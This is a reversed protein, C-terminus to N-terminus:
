NGCYLCGCRRDEFKAEAHITVEWLEIIKGGKTRRCPDLLSRSYKKGRHRKLVNPKDYFVFEKYETDGDLLEITFRYMGIPKGCSYIEYAHYSVDTECFMVGFQGDQPNGKIHKIALYPYNSVIIRIIYEAEYRMTGEVPPSNLDPKFPVLGEVLGPNYLMMDDQLWWPKIWIIEKEEM